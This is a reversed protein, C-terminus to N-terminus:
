RKLNRKDFIRESINIDFEIDEFVVTTISDSRRKDQITIKFPIYRKGAKKIDYQRIEKLLRGGKAYLEIKMPIYREKDVYLVQREYTTDPVKSKLDVVYCQAGDVSEEKLLKASYKKKIEETELMDEYSIDSGMMGQRLMHGSIKMTDDADPFYIWLEDGKKLYKVGNDEPNTFKMYAKDGEKMGYGYFNKVLRRGGKEITMVATFKQTRFLQNDDVKKIIDDATQAYLASHFIILLSLIARKM